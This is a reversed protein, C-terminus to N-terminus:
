KKKLLEQMELLKAGAQALKIRAEQADDGALLLEVKRLSDKVPYLDDGPVFNAMDKLQVAIKENILSRLLGANFPDKAEFDHLAVAVDYVGRNFSRLLKLGERPSGGAFMAKAKILDKYQEMFFVKKEEIEANALVPVNEDEMGADAQLVSATVDTLIQEDYAEDSAMNASIWLTSAQLAPDRSNMASLELTSTEGSSEGHLMEASYGAVVTKVTETDEVSVVDVVNDFVAVKTVDGKAYLDFAAKQSVNARVYETEVMFDSRDDIMNIVRTWLRGDRLFLEINTVMPHLTSTALKKIQLDTNEGLRTVSDDLFYVSVFSKAGTLIQDGEQLALRAMATMMRGDRVVFVDGQVDSLFTQALAKPVRYPMVFVATFSFIFLLVSSLVMRFYKFYPASSFGFFPNRSIIGFIREKLRVATVVPLTVQTAVRHINLGLRRLSSPLLEANGNGPANWANRGAANSSRGAANENRGIAYLLNRRLLNKQEANLQPKPVKKLSVMLKELEKTNDLKPRWFNFM